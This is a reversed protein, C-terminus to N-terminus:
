QVKLETKVKERIYKEKKDEPAEPRKAANELEFEERYKMSEGLTRAYQKQMLNLVEDLKKDLPDMGSSKKPKPKAKERFLNLDTLMDEEPHENRLHEKLANKKQRLTLLEKHIDAIESLVEELAEGEATKQKREQLELIRKEYGITKTAYEQIKVKHANMPEAFSSVSLWSVAFFVAAFTKM